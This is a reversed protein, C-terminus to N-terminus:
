SSFDAFILWGFTLIIVLLAVAAATASFNPDKVLQEMFQDFVALKPNNKVTDM